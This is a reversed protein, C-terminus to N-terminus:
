SSIRLSMRRLFGPPSPSLPSLPSLAPCPAPQPSQRSRSPAPRPPGPSVQRISIESETEGHGKQTKEGQGDPGRSQREERGQGKARERQAEGWARRETDTEQRGLNPPSPFRSSVEVGAGGWREGAGGPLGLVAGDLGGWKTSQPSPGERGTAGM